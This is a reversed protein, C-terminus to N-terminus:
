PVIVELPRDRHLLLWDGNEALAEEGFTRFLNEIAAHSLEANSLRKDFEEFRKSMAQFRRAHEAFAMKEGYAVCLAAAVLLIGIAIILTEELAKFGTLENQGTGAWVLVWLVLAVALSAWFFVTSWRKWRRGNEQERPWAKTFYELQTRVWRERLLGNHDNPQQPSPDERGLNKADHARWCRLAQPIWKLEDQLKPDYKDEVADPM